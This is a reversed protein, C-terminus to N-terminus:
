PHGDGRQWVTKGNGAGNAAPARLSSSLEVHDASEVQNAVRHAVPIDLSEEAPEALEVYAKIWTEWREVERLAEDRREMAKKLIQEAM